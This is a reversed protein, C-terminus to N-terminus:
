RLVRKADVMGQIEEASLNKISGLIEAL